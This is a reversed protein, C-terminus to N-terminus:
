NLIFHRLVFLQKLLISTFFTSNVEIMAVRQTWIAIQEELFRVQKIIYAYETISPVKWVQTLRTTLRYNEDSLRDNEHQFQEIERQNEEFINKLMVTKKKAENWLYEENELISKLQQVRLFSPYQKRKETQYIRDLEDYNEQFDEQRTTNLTVDVDDMKEHLENLTQIKRNVDELRRHLRLSNARVLGIVTGRSNIRKKIRSVVLEAPVKLHPGFFEEDGISLRYREIYREVEHILGAQSIVDSSAM